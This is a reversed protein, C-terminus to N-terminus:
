IVRLLNGSHSHPPPEHHCPPHLGGARGSLTQTRDSAHDHIEYETWDRGHCDTCSVQRTWQYTSGVMAMSLCSNPMYRGRHDPHHGDGRVRILLSPHSEFKPGKEFAMGRKKNPNTAIAMMRVM